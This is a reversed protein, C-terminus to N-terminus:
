RRALLSFPNRIRVSSPRKTGTLIGLLKLVANKYKSSRSSFPVADLLAKEAFKGDYPLVVDVKRGLFAEIQELSCGDRVSPRSYSLVLIRRSPSGQDPTRDLILKLKRLSLMGPDFVLIAADSSELLTIKDAIKENALDLLIFHYREKLHTKLKHFVEIKKTKFGQEMKESFLIDLRDAVRQSAREILLADLREPNEWLSFAKGHGGLGFHHSCDGLEFDLDVIMTRRSAEASLMQGLSCILSSVGVGGSVGCLSVIKGTRAGGEDQSGPEGLISHHLLEQPLPKVFYDSVGCSMLSRYLAVSDEKGIAIVRIDPACVNALRHLDSLPMESASIDIVLLSPSEEKSYKHVAEKVGGRFSEIQSFRSGHLCSVLTNKSEEDESFLAASILSVPTELSEILVM